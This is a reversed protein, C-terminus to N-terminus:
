YSKFCNSPIKSTVKAVCIQIKRHQFICWQIHMLYICNYMGLVNRLKSPAFSAISAEALQSILISFNAVLKGHYGNQNNDNTEWQALGQEFYKNLPDTTCLAQLAANMYCSNGVNVLGTYEDLIVDISFAHCKFLECSKITKRAIIKGRALEALDEPWSLDPKRFEVLLASTKPIGDLKLHDELLTRKETKDDLNEIEFIRVSELMIRKTRSLDERFVQVTTNKFLIAQGDFELALPKEHDAM